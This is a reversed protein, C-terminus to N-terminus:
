DRLHRGIGAKDLDGANRPELCQHTLIREDVKGMIERRAQVQIDSRDVQAGEPVEM